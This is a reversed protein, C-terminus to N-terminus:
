INCYRVSVKRRSHFIYRFLWGLAPIIEPFSFMLPNGTPFHTSIMEINDFSHFSALHAGKEIKNCYEEAGEFNRKENVDNILKYCWGDWPVWGVECVTEKIEIPGTSLFCVM